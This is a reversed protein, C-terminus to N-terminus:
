LGFKRAFNQAIDDFRSLFDPKKDEKPATTDQEQQAASREGAGGEVADLYLEALAAPYGAPTDEAPRGGPWLALDLVRELAAPYGAATPQAASQPQAGPSAEQLDLVDALAAPYAAPDHEQEAAAAQPTDDLIRALAEPYAAAASSAPASSVATGEDADALLQATIDDGDSAAADDLNLGLGLAEALVVPYRGRLRGTLQRTAHWGGRRGRRGDRAGYKAAQAGQASTSRPSFSGQSFSADGPVCLHVCLHTLRLHM